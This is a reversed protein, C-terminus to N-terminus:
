AEGSSPSASPSVKASGTGSDPYERLAADHLADALEAATRVQRWGPEGLEGYLKDMYSCLAFDFGGDWLMTITVNIESDYLSQLTEALNRTMAGMKYRRPGKSRGM